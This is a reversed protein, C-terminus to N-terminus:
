HCVDTVLTKWIYISFWIKNFEDKKVVLILKIFAAFGGENRKEYFWKTMIYKKIRFGRQWLSGLGKLIYLYLEM